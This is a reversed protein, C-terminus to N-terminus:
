GIRESKGFLGHPRTMLVVVMLVLGIVNQWQSGDFGGRVGVWLTLSEAIGLFLGVVLAGGVSGIGAVIAVAFMKLSVTNAVFPDATSTTNAYLLGGIVAICSGILVALLTMGGTNIGVGKALMANEAVARLLQGPETYNLFALLGFTIILAAALSVVVSNTIYLGEIVYTHTTFLAPVSRVRFDALKAVLNELFFSVGLTAVFFAIMIEKDLRKLILHFMAFGVLLSGILVSITAALVGWGLGEAGGLFFLGFAALMYFDAHAVNMLGMVGFVLTFGIAVLVYLTGSGLGDIVYQLFETLSM